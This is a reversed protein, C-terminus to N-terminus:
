LMPESLIVLVHAKTRDDLENLSSYSSWGYCMAHVLPYSEELADELKRGVNEDENNIAEAFVDSVSCGEVMLTDINYREKFITRCVDSHEVTTVDMFDVLPFVQGSTKQLEVLELFWTPLDNDNRHAYWKQLHAKDIGKDSLVKDFAEQRTLFNHEKIALPMKHETTYAFKVGLERLFRDVLTYSQTDRDGLVWIGDDFAMPQLTGKYTRTFWAKADKKQVKKREAPDTLGMQSTYFVNGGIEEFFKVVRDKDATAYGRSMTVILTHNDFKSMYAVKVHSYAESISHASDQVILNLETRNDLVCSHFKLQAPSVTGFLSSLYAVKNNGYRIRLKEGVELSFNGCEYDWYTDVKFPFTEVSKSLFKKHIPNSAKGILKDLEAQYVKEVAEKVKGLFMETRKSGHDLEERSNMFNVAGIPVHVRFRADSAERFGMDRYPYAINGMVIRSGKNRHNVVQLVCQKGEYHLDLTFTHLVEIPELEMGVIELPYTFEELINQCKQRFTAIDSQRVDFSVTVGTYDSPYKAMEKLKPIGADRYMSIIEVMGGHGNIVQYVDTYAYPAKSGVGLAGTVENSTQKTSGSVTKYVEMVEPSMGSGFDKVEFTPNAATPVTVRVPKDVGSMIHSDVANCVIERIAAAMKDRYLDTYMMDFVKATAEIKLTEGAEGSVQAPMYQKGLKM